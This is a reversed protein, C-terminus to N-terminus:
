RRWRCGPTGAAGRAPMPGGARRARRPGAHDRRDADDRLAPEVAAAGCRTRRSRTASRGRAQRRDHIVSVAASMPAASPTRTTPRSSSGAGPRDRRRARRRRCAARRHRVPHSCRSALRGIRPTLKPRSPNRVSTVSGSISAASAAATSPVAGICSRAMSCARASLPPVRRRRDCRASRRRRDRLARDRAEDVEGHRDVVVEHGVDLGVPQDDRAGRARGGVVERGAAGDHVGADVRQEDRRDRGCVSPLRGITIGPPDVM